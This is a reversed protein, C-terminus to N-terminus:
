SSCFFTQCDGHWVQDPVPM